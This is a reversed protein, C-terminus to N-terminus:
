ANGRRLLGAGISMRNGLNRNTKNRSMNILQPACGPDSNVGIGVAIGDSVLVITGTGGVYVDVKSTAAGVGNM